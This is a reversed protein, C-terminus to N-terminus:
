SSIGTHQQTSKLGPKQSFDKVYKCIFKSRNVYVEFTQITVITIFTINHLCSNLAYRFDSLSFFFPLTTTAFLASVNSGLHSFSFSFFLAICMTDFCAVEICPM